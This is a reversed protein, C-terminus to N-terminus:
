ETFHGSEILRTAMHRMRSQTMSSLPGDNFSVEVEDEDLHDIAGNTNHCCLMTHGTDFEIDYVDYGDRHVRRNVETIAIDEGKLEDLTFTGDCGECKVKRDGNHDEIATLCAHYCAPCELQVEAM